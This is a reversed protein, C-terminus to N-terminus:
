WVWENGIAERQGTGFSAPTADTVQSDTVLGTAKGAQKAQELVTEVPEENADVGIAGNYTKVGTALATGGAASDTVFTEPDASNTHSRGEYPMDDMALEGELGVTALILDRQSTGMGDGVFIITNKAEGGSSEARGTEVGSSGALLVVFFLALLVASVRWGVGLM